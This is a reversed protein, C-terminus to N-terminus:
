DISTLNVNMLARATRTAPHPEPPADPMALLMEFVRVCIVLLVPLTRTGVAGVSVVVAAEVVFITVLVSDAVVGVSDVVIVAVDLSFLEESDPPTGPQAQTSMPAPTAAAAAAAKKAMRRLCRSM